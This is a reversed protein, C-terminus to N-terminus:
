IFELYIADGPRAGFAEEASGKTRAIEFLCSSSLTAILERESAHGYSKFFRLTMTKGAIRVSVKRGAEVREELMEKPIDSIINGFHDIHIVAGKIRDGSVTPHFLKMDNCDTIEPGLEEVPVGLTLHAAVPAFIDRGHFTSSVDDKWFRREVLHVAKRLGLRRAVPMLLGNDPGVLVGGECELAIGRRDTGVGPDVVAVHVADEFHPATTYLAYAGRVIDQPPVGHSIDVMRAAQNISLIVGKMAAVYPGNGFDTTFTIVNMRIIYAM